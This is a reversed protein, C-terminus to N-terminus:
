IIINPDFICDAGTLEERVVGVLADAPKDNILVEAPFVPVVGASTVTRCPTLRLGELGDSGGSLYNAVQEPIVGSAKNMSTIVVPKGTFCDRLSNGTDALGDLTVEGGNARIRVVARSQPKRRDAIYRFLRFCGYVAATVAAAAIIPIDFYATGNRMFMCEPAALEWLVNMAGGFVFSVLLFALVNILFDVKKQRGFATLTIIVGALIRIVACLVPHIDPALILLSGAAGVAAAAIIRVPPISRRLVLATGRILFYNIYLNVVLLVDVYIVM